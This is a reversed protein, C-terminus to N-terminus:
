DVRKNNTSDLSAWALLGEVRRDFSLRLALGCLVCDQAEPVYSGDGDERRQHRTKRIKQISLRM